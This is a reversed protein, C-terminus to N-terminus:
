QFYGVFGETTMTGPEGSIKASGCSGKSVMQAQVVGPSSCNGNINYDCNGCFSNNVSVVLADLMAAPTPHDYERRESM